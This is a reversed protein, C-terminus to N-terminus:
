LNGLYINRPFRGWIPTFIGFINSVVVQYINSGSGGRGNINRPVVGDKWWRHREKGLKTWRPNRNMANVYPEPRARTHCKGQCERVARHHQHHYENAFILILGTPNLHPNVVKFSVAFAGSFPHNSANEVNESAVSSGTATSLCIQVIHLM